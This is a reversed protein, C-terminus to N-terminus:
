FLQHLKNHLNILKSHSKVCKAISIPTWEFVRRTQSLVYICYRQFTVNGSWCTFHVTSIQKRHVGLIWDFVSSQRKWIYINNLYEEFCSLLITSLTQFIENTIWNLKGFNQKKQLYKKQKNWKDFVNIHFSNKGKTAM